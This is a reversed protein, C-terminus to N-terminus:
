GDDGVALVVFDLQIFTNKAEDVILDELRGTRNLELGFKRIDRM